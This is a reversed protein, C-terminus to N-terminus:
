RREKYPDVPSSETVTIVRTGPLGPLAIDSLNLTCTLTASVTGVVGIPVNLGSSDISVDLSICNIGSNRLATHAMERAAVQAQESTNSLSAERAAAGGASKVSLEASSIRGASVALLIVSLLTMAFLIMEVAASGEEHHRLLRRLNM